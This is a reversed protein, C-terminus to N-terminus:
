RAASSGHPSPEHLRDHQLLGTRPQDLVTGLRDSGLTLHSDVHNFSPDALGVQLQDGSVHAVAPHQTVLEDSHRPRSPQGPPPHDPLDVAATPGAPQALAPQGIVTGLSGHQPDQTTVPCKGFRQHQRLRVQVLHGVSHGIPDRHKGFRNGSCELDKLLNIDGSGFRHGHQAVSAQAVEAGLDEGRGAAPDPNDALM